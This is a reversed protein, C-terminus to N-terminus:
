KRPRRRLTGTSNLFDGAVNCAHQVVYDVPNITPPDNSAPVAAIPPQPPTTCGALAWLAGAITAVLRLKMRHGRGAVSAREGSTPHPMTQSQGPKTSVRLSKGSTSGIGLVRGGYEGSNRRCITSRTRAPRLGSRDQGRTQASRGSWERTPRGPQGFRPGGPTRPREQRSSWSGPAVVRISCLALDRARGADAPCGDAPNLAAVTAARGPRFGSLPM